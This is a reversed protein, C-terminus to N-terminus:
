SRRLCSIVIFRVKVLLLHVKINPFLRGIKLLFANMYPTIGPVTYTTATTDNQQYNFGARFSDSPTFCNAESILVDRRPRCMYLDYYCRGVASNTIELKGYIKDVKMRGSLTNVIGRWNQGCLNTMDVVDM